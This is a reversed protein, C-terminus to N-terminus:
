RSTPRSQPDSEGTTQTNKKWDIVIMLVVKLATHAETDSGDRIETKVQSNSTKGAAGTLSNIARFVM